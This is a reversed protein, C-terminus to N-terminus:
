YCTVLVLRLVQGSNLVRPVASALESRTRPGPGERAEAPAARAHCCTHPWVPTASARLPGAARRKREKCAAGAPRGECSGCPPGYSPRGAPAPRRHGGRDSTNDRRRTGPCGDPSGSVPRYIDTNFEINVPKIRYHFESVSGSDSVATSMDTVIASSAFPKPLDFGYM